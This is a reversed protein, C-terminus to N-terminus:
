QLYENAIKEIEETYSSYAFVPAHNVATAQNSNAFATIFVLNSASGISHENTTWETASDMYNKAPFISIGTNNYRNPGLPIFGKPVDPRLDHNFIGYVTKLSDEGYGTVFSKRLPNAGLIYNLASLAMNNVTKTNIGLITSGILAETGTGMIINNSGWYYNGEFITNNWASQKYRNLGKNLWITFEDKYWKAADVNPHSAKMYYFFAYNWLGASDAESNEFINKSQTYNNLFYENYQAEGTARFLSASATLRSEKDSDTEYSRTPGKVNDPNQELYTWASKAAELCQDAFEPDYSSYVISAHALSAVAIATDNTPRLNTVNGSKDRIVRMNDDDNTSEVKAYFGGSVPDQMKLIWEVEWRAEDLIDPVGNGSEPINFQNDTYSEPYLESSWLLTMVALAGDSVYKGKDGADFWGKTVDRTVASNSEFPAASDMPTKDARPFGLAFEPDLATGSRQYYYYRAADALLPKFVESGIKFNLSKAIGNADVTIYYDGPETLDTFVAKLVREGSDIDYDKVLLLQGSYAVTDDSVRKVQFQTGPTANFDDEFGSVYAYKESSNRFGVQNVKIAPFAKEKDPSTLKIQNLWVTFTDDNVRDLVVSRTNYEDLDFSPDNYIDKLPIKVHQWETTVTVYDTISKYVSREDGSARRAVLDDGGIKFQEGGVKGKVNFELYGNPIYNHIDHTNWGAMVIKAAMWDIKNTISFRLSPLNEFTEQSDVPLGGNVTELGGSSEAFGSFSDKFVYYDPLNRWGEPAGYNAYVTTNPIVLTSALALICLLVTLIKKAKM